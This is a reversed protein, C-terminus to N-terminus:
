IFWILVPPILVWQLFPTGGSGAISGDCRVDNDDAIIYYELAVSHQPNKVAELMIIYLADGETYIAVHHRTAARKPVCDDNFLAADM